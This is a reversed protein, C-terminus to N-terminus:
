KKICKLQDFVDIPETKQWYQFDLVYDGYDSFEDKNIIEGIKDGKKVEDGKKLNTSTLNAYVYFENGRRVLITLLNATCIIAAIKGESISTVSIPKESHIKTSPSQYSGRYINWCDRKNRFEYSENYYTVGNEVPCDIEQSFYFVSLFLFIITLFKM